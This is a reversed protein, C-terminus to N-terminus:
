NVLANAIQKNNMDRAKKATSTKLTELPVKSKAASAKAQGNSWTQIIFPPCLLLYNRVMIKM